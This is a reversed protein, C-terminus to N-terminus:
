FEEIMNDYCIKISMAGKVSYEAVMREIAPREYLIVRGHHNFRLNKLKRSVAYECVDQPKHHGTEMVLLDAGEVGLRDLEEPSRVDGSFILRKGEAEVLFSFSHWDEPDAFEGMHNNHIATVKINEDEFYGLSEALYLPAYFVSHTVENVKVTKMDDKEKCSSLPLTLFCAALAAYIFKTIKKM